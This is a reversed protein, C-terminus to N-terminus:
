ARGSSTNAATWRERKLRYLRYPWGDTAVVDREFAMGLKEMVRASAPNSPHHVAVISELELREFAGDRVARGAETAYGRGWADWKLM